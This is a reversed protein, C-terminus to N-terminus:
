VMLRHRFLPSALKLVLVEGFRVWVTFLPLVVVATLEDTLGRNRSLAHGVGGRQRHCSGSRPCRGSGNVETSPPTVM